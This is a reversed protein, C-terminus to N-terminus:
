CKEVSSISDQYPYTLSSWSYNNQWTGKIGTFKNDTWTCWSRGSYNSVSSIVDNWGSPMSALGPSYLTFSLNDGQLGADRYLVFTAGAAEDDTGAPLIARGEAVAPHTPAAQAPVSAGLSVGALLTTGAAARLLSKMRM